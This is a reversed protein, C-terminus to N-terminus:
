PDVSDPSGRGAQGNQTHSKGPEQCLASGRVPLEQLLALAYSSFGCTSSSVLSVIMVRRKLVLFFDSPEYVGPGLGPTETLM